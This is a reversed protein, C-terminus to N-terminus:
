RSQEWGMSRQFKNQQTALGNNMIKWGFILIKHPLLIKWYEKWIPRGELNASTSQGGGHEGMHRKRALCLYASKVTYFGNNEYHWASIVEAPESPLRIKKIEQIDAPWFFKNLVDDNWQMNPQDILQHVWKLHCSRKKGIPRLNWARPIWPHRWLRVRQGSGIRWIYGKKVLELGHVIAQWTPSQNM